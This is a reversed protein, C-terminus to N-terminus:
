RMVQGDLVTIHSATVHQAKQEPMYGRQGVVGIQQGVYKYLNVGTSPTVYSRVNGEEDLLAFRPV